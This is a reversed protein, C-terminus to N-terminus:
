TSVELSLLIAKTKSGSLEADECGESEGDEGKAKGEGSVGEGREDV